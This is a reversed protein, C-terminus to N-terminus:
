QQDCSGSPASSFDLELLYRSEEPLHAPDTRALVDVQRLIQRRELRRIYGTSKDHLLVNRFVWQAHSIQLIHSIFQKGCNAITLRSPTCGHIANQLSLIEKSLKGEMFSTWPDFRPECGCAKHRTVTWAHRQTPWYGEPHYVKSVTSFSPTPM